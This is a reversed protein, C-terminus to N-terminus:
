KKAFIMYGATTNRSEKILIRDLLYALPEMIKKVRWLFPLFGIAARFYRGIKFMEIESFDNFLVELGDKSFRWYDRYGGKRAHYPHIFPVVALMYGGPKLVRYIESIAKQPNYLHEFVYVHLVADFSNDEFPMDHADGVVSPKTEPDIDLTIYERGRLLEKHNSLIKQFPQGGGVDLIKQCNKAIIELKKAFFKNYDYTM